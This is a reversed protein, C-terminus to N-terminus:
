DGSGAASQQAGKGARQCRAVNRKVVEVGVSGSLYLCLILHQDYLSDSLGEVEDRVLLVV